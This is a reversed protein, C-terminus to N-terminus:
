SDRPGALPRAHREPHAFSVVQRGGQQERKKADEAIKRINYGFKAAHEDRVRRVENVISDEQM